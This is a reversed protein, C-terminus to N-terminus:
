WKLSNFNDCIFESFVSSLKTEPHFRSKLLSLQSMKNLPLLQESEISIKKEGRIVVFYLLSRTGQRSDNLMAALSSIFFKVIGFTRRRQRPALCDYFFCFPFLAHLLRFQHLAFHCTKKNKQQHSLYFALTATQRTQQVPSHFLVMSISAAPPSSDDM